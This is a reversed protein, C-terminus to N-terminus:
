APGPHSFDCRARWNSMGSLHQCFQRVAPLMQRLRPFLDALSALPMIM